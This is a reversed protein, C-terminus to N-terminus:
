RQVLMLPVHTHYALVLTNTKKFLKEFFGHQRPMSIILDIHQKAVFDNIAEAFSPATLFHYEPKNGQFLRDLVVTGRRAEAIDPQQGVHLVHLKAKTRGLLNKITEVPTTDEVEKLDSALAVNQVPAFVAKPPVIIVPADAVKSVDITNSGVFMEKLAGGGTIGMIILSAGTLECTQNVQDALTGSSHYLEIEIDGTYPKLEEQFESLKQTSSEKYPDNVAIANYGLLPDPVNIVNYCHYLVVRKFNNQKAFALAYIAANKATASFDTPVLITSM